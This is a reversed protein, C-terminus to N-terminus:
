KLMGGGPDDDEKVIDRQFGAPQPDTGVAAGATVVADLGNDLFNAGLLEGPDLDTYACLGVGFM